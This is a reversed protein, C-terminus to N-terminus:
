VYHAVKPDDLIERPLPPEEPPVFLALYLMERLFAEDNGVAPRILTM